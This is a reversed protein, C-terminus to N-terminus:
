SSRAILGLAKKEYIKGLIASELKWMKKAELKSEHDLGHLHLLGHVILIDAEVTWAHRLLSAQKQLVPACLVLEGLLGYQRFEDVVSFSLIDTAYNKNRYKKNIKKMAAAGLVRTEVQWQKGSRSRFKSYQDLNKLWFEVRKKVWADM